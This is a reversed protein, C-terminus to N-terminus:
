HNLFQRAWILDPNAQVATQFEQRAATQDDRTLYLLGTLYHFQALKESRSGDEGFKSYEDIGEKNEKIKKISEALADFEKNGATLNGLEKFAMGRFFALEAAGRRHVDSQSATEFAKKAETDNKLEQYAKGLFYFVKASHGGGSPRGVELNEPYTDAIEFEKVAGAFDKQKLKELGALLHADVFYRHVDGGGEWVHFHRTELIAIAKDFQGALNFMGLLRIVADDHKRVVDGFKEYLALRETVSKASQEYLKDLEILLRPTVTNMSVSKEYVAVAKEKEGKQSYAFGLNRLVSGFKPDIEAAKEWNAVAKEKQELYYLLNGLYYYGSPNDPMLRIATEFINIEEPRFPFCRDPSLKAAQNCYFEGQEKNNLKIACFAAYFSPLPSDFPKGQEIATELLQLSDSYAGLQIYDMALELVEQLMIMGDGRYRLEKSLFEKSLFEKQDNGLLGQEIIAWFDLPDIELVQKLIASAEKKRGLQRLIFAKITSSKPNRANLQLSSDILQLASEFDNERCAIQTLKLYAASQYTTYWTAKWFQDKAEKLKGQKELVNGLYYNAELDRPATYNKSLRDIARQLYEAAEDWKGQKALRIGIVTNVRSNNPDRKLAENYYLMPDIRANHFQELRLGTLYLEEVTKYEDAPKTTEVVKPLEKETASKAIPRYVVLEKNDETFLAVFLDTDPTTEPINIEQVFPHAPDIDINKEYLNKGGIRLVARANKYKKTTNFGFFVSNPSIREINVAANKNAEKVGRLERIPYWFQVFERIEGPAVWSYDPQNDSFAGVMLELYQGDNDTLMKEWILSESNNGWLFFKKGGVIHHNAVHTTGAHKAHDYGAFFDNDFDWAFVSAPGETFNKWWSIDQDKDIPWRRFETKSHGTGFETTPPFHVQYNEDCHVSVNAWYLISQIFPTRNIIKVKAEVLSSDPYLSLGVSWKLRHRFETEGVWITKSGDKNEVTKYDIPMFSSPRHHHPLNWEVGGSMWAGLMGILAPKVVHQRYFFEYGNTKDTASLIRGGIEPLVCLQVFENELCVANYTENVKNDTLVDYLPYPYIHGQAGQYVRGTFYIPNLEPEGIKYTPLMLPKTELKVEQAFLGSAFGFVIGAVFIICFRM